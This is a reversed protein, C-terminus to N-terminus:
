FGFRAGVQLKRPNAAAIPQGYFPSTVVFSYATFNARNLLNQGAVYFEVRYRKDEAGGGFGPALGGGGGIVVQMGTPGGGQRPKGFGLAYSVRGGLDWQAAGRASNRSTGAPRDNFVGDANNDRGTTVNYPLRSQARLNLGVTLNKVPSSSFSVGARHRIDSAAAGWELDIRDGREPLFYGGTTNTDNRSWSYNATFFTRHWDMRVINYFVSLTQSRSAADGTLEVINAFQPDPRVGLVPANLNRGRLLGRGWGRSYSVSARSNKTLTREAGLSVRHTTPLALEESWLYRNTPPADGADGPDPYSPRVLNVERQRYGDILLSQKYLDGAIWDYFYGYSGRLTLSGSRYPSWAASIRPSLNVAAGAHSQLGARVGPSILLSRAVRWDDQVYFGAQATSYEVRPDGTRRTFNAARGADFDALSAFTYTGLYNTTDDSRYRGGEFLVGTRWSHAGKVYDLDSAFEVEFARRGGRQQAGGSTFADQVRITRAEVASESESSSWRLQLRSETFWRRGLPGNESVRLTSTAATRDFARDFLDYGGVGLNHSASWDRDVSIRAAHDKTIAHDLRANILYSDRPQEITDTATSGDPLMALLNPSSYQSGTNGFVSFSTRNPKITGSLSYGAQRLQEAPKEPTFANRANLADDMFNFDVNGRLPGNGPQTMIDIFMMGAMGGHNQAAFMDMRPLRISRIQSKPPLKGGTFGDVRITAGPPAMAKLVAEMEDPDDPLAAIQERTLVSSFASGPDLSVSQRDREVTVSTDFGAIQLTIRRRTEGGRIRVGQLEAPRFGPFEARITYRGDPLGEVVAVGTDSTAVPAMPVGAAGDEATVTVSARPIVSNTQDAVTVVLRGRRTQDGARAPAAALALLVFWAILASRRHV